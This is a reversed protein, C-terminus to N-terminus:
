QDSSKPQMALLLLTVVRTFAEWDEQTIGPEHLLTEPVRLGELAHMLDVIGFLRGGSGIVIGRADGTVHTRAVATTNDETESGFELLSSRLAATMEAPSWAQRAVKQIAELVTERPDM